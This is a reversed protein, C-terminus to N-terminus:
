PALERMPGLAARGLAQESLGGVPDRPRLCLLHGRVRSWDVKHLERLFRDFTSIRAADEEAVGSLALLTGSARSPAAALVAFTALAWASAGPDDVPEITATIAEWAARAAAEDDEWRWAGRRAHPLAIRLRSLVERNAERAEDATESQRAALAEALPAFGAFPAPFALQLAFLVSGVSL